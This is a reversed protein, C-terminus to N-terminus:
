WIMIEKGAKMGYVMMIIPTEELILISGIFMDQIKVTKSFMRFHMFDVASM